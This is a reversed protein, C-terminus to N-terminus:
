PTAVAATTRPELQGDRYRVMGHPSFRIDLDAIPAIRKEAAVRNNLERFTIAGCLFKIFHALEARDHFKRHFTRTSITSEKFLTGRPHGHDLHYIVASEVWTFRGGQDAFRYALDFDEMGYGVFDEDFGALRAFADASIALSNGQAALWPVAFRDIGSSVMDRTLGALAYEEDVPALGDLGSFLAPEPHEAAAMVRPVHPVAVHNVTSLLLRDPQALHARWLQELCRPEALCDDDLIMLLEGTAMRVCANRAASRGANAQVLAQFRYPPSFGALFEATGDRSGDDVVLVEFDSRPFEQLGLVHLVSRLYSLKDRTIVIISIKM